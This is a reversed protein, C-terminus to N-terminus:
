SIRMNPKNDEALKARPCRVILVIASRRAAPLERPREGLVSVRLSKGKKKKKEPPKAAVRSLQQVLIMSTKCTGEYMTAHARARTVLERAVGAYIHIHM